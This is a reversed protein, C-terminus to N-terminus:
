MQKQCQISRLYKKTVKRALEDTMETKGSLCELVEQPLNKIVQIHKQKKRKMNEVTKNKGNILFVFSEDRKYIVYIEDKDHGCLSKAMEVKM